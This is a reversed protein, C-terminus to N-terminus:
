EDEYYDSILPRQRRRRPGTLLGITTTGSTLTEFDLEPMLSAPTPLSEIFRRAQETTTGALALRTQADLSGMKIGAIAKRGMAEIEAEAMRRLEDRRERVMNEGRSYWDSTISPAFERPIGYEREVDEAIEANLAAIQERIRARAAAWNDNHDWNFRQGLKNEFDARLEAKRHDIMSIQVKERDRVLRQLDNIEQRTMQGNGSDRRPLNRTM